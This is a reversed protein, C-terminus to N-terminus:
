SAAGEDQRDEDLEPIYPGFLTVELGRVVGEWTSFPSSHWAFHNKPELDLLEVVDAWRGEHPQALFISAAGDDLVEASSIADDGIENEIHAVIQALTTLHSSTAM